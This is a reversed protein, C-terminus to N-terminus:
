RRLRRWGTHVLGLLWVIPIAVIGQGTWRDAGNAEEHLRQLEPDLWGSM